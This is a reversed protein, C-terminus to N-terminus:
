LVWTLGLLIWTGTTWAVDNTLWAVSASGDPNVTLGFMAGKTGGGNDSQCVGRMSVAPRAAAPITGAALFITSSGSARSVVGSLHAASGNYTVQIVAQASFNNATSLNTTTTKDLVELKNALAQSAAPYQYPHDDPTVYPWGSTTTGSM